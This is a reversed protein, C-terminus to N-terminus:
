SHQNGKKKYITKGLYCFFSGIVDIIFLLAFVSIISNKCAEDNWFLVLMALLILFCVYGIPQLIHMLNFGLLKNVENEVTTESQEFSRKENM